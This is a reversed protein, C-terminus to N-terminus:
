RTELQARRSNHHGLYPAVWAAPLAVEGPEEFGDVDAGDIVLETAGRAHEQAAGPTTLRCVGRDDRNGGGAVADDCAIGTVDVAEYRRGPTLNGDHRASASSPWGWQEERQGLPLSVFQPMSAPQDGSGGDESVAADRSRLLGVEAVQRQQQHESGAAV